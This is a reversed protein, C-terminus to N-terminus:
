HQKVNIWYFFQPTGFKLQNLKMTPTVYLVSSKYM